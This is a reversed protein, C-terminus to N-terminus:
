SFSTVPFVHCKISNNRETIFGCIERDLRVHEVNDYALLQFFKIVKIIFAHRTLLIGIMEMENETKHLCM